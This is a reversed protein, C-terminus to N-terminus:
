KKLLKVGGGFRIGIWGKVDRIDVGKEGDGSGCSVCDKIGWRCKEFFM